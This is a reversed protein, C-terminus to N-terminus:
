DSRRRRRRMLLALAILATFCFLAVAHSGDISITPVRPLVQLVHGEDGGGLGAIAHAVVLPGEQASAIPRSRSRAKAQLPASWQQVENEVATRCADSDACALAELPGCRALADGCASQVAPARGVDLRELQM